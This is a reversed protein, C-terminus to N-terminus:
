RYALAGPPDSFDAYAPYDCFVIIEHQASSILEIIKNLFFPFNGVYRTSLGDQVARVDSTARRIGVLHYVGVLLAVIALILGVIESIRWEALEGWSM